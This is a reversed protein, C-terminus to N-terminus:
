IKEYTMIKFVALDDNKNKKDLLCLGEPSVFFTEFSLNEPVISEGIYNFKQDFVMIINKKSKWGYRDLEQSEDPLQVVRYYVNKYSDYIVAWYSPTTSFHANSDYKVYKKGIDSMSSIENVVNSSAMKETVSRDPRRIIVQHKAPLSIVFEGSNPNYTSYPMRFLTGGWNASGYDKTYDVEYKVQHAKLNYSNLILRNFATDQKAEGALWGTMLLENTATIVMPSTVSPNAFPSSLEYGHKGQGLEHGIQFQDILKGKENVLYVMPGDYNFIFISDMSKVLYDKMKLARNKIHIEKLVPIKFQYSQDKDDYFYINGTQPNFLTVYLKGKLDYSHVIADDSVATSSDLAFSKSNSFTMEITNKLKGYESNENRKQDSKCGLFGVLTLILLTCNKRNMDFRKPSFHQTSCGGLM